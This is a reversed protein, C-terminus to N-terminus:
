RQASQEGVSPAADPRDWARRVQIRLEQLEASTLRRDPPSPMADRQRHHAEIAQWLASRVAAARDSAGAPGAEAAEGSAQAWVAAPLVAAALLGCRLFVNFKM